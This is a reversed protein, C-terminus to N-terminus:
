HLSLFPGRPRISPPTTSIKTARALAPIILKRALQHAAADHPTQRFLHLFFRTGRSPQRLSGQSGVPLVPPRGGVRSLAPQRLRFGTVRSHGAALRTWGEAAHTGHARCGADAPRGLRCTAAPRSSGTPHPSFDRCHPNPSTHLLLAPTAPPATEIVM